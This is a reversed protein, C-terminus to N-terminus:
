AHNLLNESLWSNVHINFRDNGSVLELTFEGKKSVINATELKAKVFSITKGRPWIRTIEYESFVIKQNAM